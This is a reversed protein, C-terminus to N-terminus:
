GQMVTYITFLVYLLLLVVSCVRGQQRNKFTFLWFIVSAAVLFMIDYNFKVSYTLPNFFSCIPIIFLINFVNSGVVNAIAIDDKRKVAAVVSTALEPLSTGMAVITIGIFKESMGWYEALEIANDVLLNGGFVLCILGVIILAIAWWVNIHKTETGVSQKRDKMAMIVVYSMYIIFVILMLLGEGWSITYPSSAMPALLGAGLLILAGLVSTPLDVQIISKNVTMPFIIGAIGLIFLLNFINSGVVNAIAIDNADKLSASLSVVFEPMSTGFAVIVLGIVLESIRLRQALKSAGDVLMDAGWILLALGFCFYLISLWM